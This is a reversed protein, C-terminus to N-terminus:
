HCGRKERELIEYQEQLNKFYQLKEVSAMVKEEEKQSQAIFYEQRSDETLQQLQAVVQTVEKHLNVESTLNYVLPHVVAPLNTLIDDLIRPLDCLCNCHLGDEPNKATFRELLDQSFKLLPHDLQRGWRRVYSGEPSYWLQDM